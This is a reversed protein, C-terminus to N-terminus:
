EISIKGEERLVAAGGEVNVEFVNLHLKKDDTVSWCVVVKLAHDIEIEKVRNNMLFFDNILNRLKKFQEDSEWLDGQFIVFPQVNFPIEANAVISDMSDANLLGLEVMDLVKHEYTRGIVLNHPRKKNHSGFLFLSTDSKKAVKELEERSEFPHMDHKRGFLVSHNRRLARQM